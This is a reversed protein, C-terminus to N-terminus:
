FTALSLEGRSAAVVLVLGICTIFCGVLLLLMFIEGPSLPRDIPDLYASKSEWPGNVRPPSAQMVRVRSYGIEEDYFLRRAPNSLISYAQNIEQFKVQAVQASLTTTDPHYEKSLHRYARRIEIPQASPHLGLLQYYNVTNLQHHANYNQM